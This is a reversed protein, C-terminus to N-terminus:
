VNSDVRACAKNAGHWAMASWVRERRGMGKEEAAARWGM